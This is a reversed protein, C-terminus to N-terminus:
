FLEVKGGCLKVAHKLARFVRQATAEDEYYSFSVAIKEYTNNEFSKLPTFDLSKSVQIAPKDNATKLSVEWYTHGNVASELEELSINLPDIESLSFIYSFKGKEDNFNREQLIFECKNSRSIFTYEITDHVTQFGGNGAVLLAFTQSQEIKSKLWELTEQVTASNEAESTTNKKPQIPKTKSKTTKRTAQRKQAFSESSGFVLVFFTLVLMTWFRHQAAQILM